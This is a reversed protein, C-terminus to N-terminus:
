PYYYDDYYFDDYYGDDYYFDEPVYLDMEIPPPGDYDPHFPDCITCGYSDSSSSSLGVIAFTIFGLVFGAILFTPLRSGSFSFTSQQPLIPSAVSKELNEKKDKKELRKKEKEKQVLRKKEQRKMKAIRKKELKEREEKALRKKEQKEKSYKGVKWYRAFLEEEEKTTAEKTTAEKTTAEKQLPIKVKYTFFRRGCNTCFDNQEVNKTGCQGCFM